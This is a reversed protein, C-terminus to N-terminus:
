RGYSKASLGLALGGAGFMSKKLFDRRSGM